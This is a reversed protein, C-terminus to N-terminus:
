YVLESLLKLDYKLWPQVVFAFGLEQKSLYCMLAAVFLCAPNCETELMLSDINFYYTHM